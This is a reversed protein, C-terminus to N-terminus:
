LPKGTYYKFSVYEQYVNNSAEAVTIDAEYDENIDDRDNTDVLAENAITEGYKLTLTHRIAEIYNEYTLNEKTLERM